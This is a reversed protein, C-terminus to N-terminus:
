INNLLSPPVTRGGADYVGNAVLVEDGPNAADVADQINTASTLWSTYPSTPSPSNLDVFRTTAAFVNLSFLALLVPILKQLLAKMGLQNQSDAM